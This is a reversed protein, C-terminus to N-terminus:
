DPPKGVELYVACPGSHILGVEGDKQAFCRVRECQEQSLNCLASCSLCDNAWMKGTEDPSPRPPLAAITPLLVAAATLMSFRM